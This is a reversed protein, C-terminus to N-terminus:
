LKSELSRISEKLKKEQENMADIAVAPLGARPCAQLAELEARQAKLKSSLRKRSAADGARMPERAQERKEACQGLAVRPLRHRHGIDGTCFVDYVAGDAEFGPLVYEGAVEFAVDGALAKPALGLASTPDACPKWGTTYPTAGYPTRHERCYWQGTEGAFAFEISGGGVATFRASIAASAKLTKARHAM